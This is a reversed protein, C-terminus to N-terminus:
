LEAGHIKSLNARGLGICTKVAFSQNATDLPGVAVLAFFGGNKQPQVMIYRYNNTFSGLGRATGGTTSAKVNGMTTTGFNALPM